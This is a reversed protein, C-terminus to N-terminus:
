DRLSVVIMSPALAFNGQRHEPEDPMTYSAVDNPGFKKIQLTGNKHLFVNGKDIQDSGNTTWYDTDVKITQPPRKEDGGNVNSKVTELALISVIRYDSIQSTELWRQM